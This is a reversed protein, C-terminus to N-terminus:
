GNTNSDKLLASRLTKYVRRAGNIHAQKYAWSPNDYASISTETKEEQAEFHDLLRSFEDSSHQILEYFREAEKGLIQKLQDKSIM